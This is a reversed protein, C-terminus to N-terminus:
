GGRRGLTDLWLSLEEELWGPPAIGLHHKPVGKAKVASLIKERLKWRPAVLLVKTLKEVNSKEIMIMTVAIEVQEKTM